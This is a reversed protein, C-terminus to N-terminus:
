IGGSFIMEAQKMDKLYYLRTMFREPSVKYNWIWSNPGASVGVQYQSNKINSHNRVLARKKIETEPILFMFDNHKDIGFLVFFDCGVDSLNGHWIWQSGSSTKIENSYKVQFKTGDQGIVDFGKEGKKATEGKTLRSVIMEYKEFDRSIEFSHNCGCPCTIIQSM